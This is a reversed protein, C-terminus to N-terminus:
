ASSNIPGSSIVPSGPPCHVSRIDCPPWGAQYSLPPQAIHAFHMLFVLPMHHGCVREPSSAQSKM